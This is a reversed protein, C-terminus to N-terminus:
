ENVAGFVLVRVVPFGLVRCPGVLFEVSYLPM